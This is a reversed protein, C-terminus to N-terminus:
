PSTWERISSRGLEGGPVFEDGGTSMAIVTAGGVIVAGALAWVWWREYWAPPAASPSLEAPSTAADTALPPPPPEPAGLGLPLLEVAVRLTRGAEVRVWKKYTAHGEAEVTVEHTGPEVAIPVELKSGEPAGDVLVRAGPVNASIEIWGESETEAAAREALALLVLAPAWARRM